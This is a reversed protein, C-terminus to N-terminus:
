VASVKPNDIEYLRIALIDHNDSLDGTAASAGFHYGTPLRVGKVTFCEKWEGKNDVDTFM